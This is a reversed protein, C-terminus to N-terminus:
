ALAMVDSEATSPASSTRRLPPSEALAYKRATNRHIGLERAIARLSLRRLRAQKVDEWLVKQRATPLRHQQPKSKRPRLDRGM